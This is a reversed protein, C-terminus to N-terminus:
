GNARASVILEHTERVNQDTTDIYLVEHSSLVKSLFLLTTRQTQLYDPKEVVSRRNKRRSNLIGEEADLFMWKTPGAVHILRLMFTPVFSSTKFPLSIARSFYIYDCITAPIYEEILVTYGMRTPLFIELLFRLAISFLDLTLWLKFLRKFIVPKEEILARVHARRPDKRSKILVRALFLSLLHAFVHDTKIFATKIKVGKKRLEFALLEIQTSKGSGVTGTFVILRPKNM